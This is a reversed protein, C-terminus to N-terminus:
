RRGGNYNWFADVDSPDVGITREHRSSGHYSIEDEAAREVEYAQQLFGEHRSRESAEAQSAAEMEESM